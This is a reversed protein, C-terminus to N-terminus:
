TAKRDSPLPDQRPTIYVELNTNIKAFYRSMKRAAHCLSTRVNPVFSPLVDSFLKRHLLYVYVIRLHTLTLIQLQLSLHGAKLLILPFQNTPFDTHRGLTTHLSSLLQIQRKILAM